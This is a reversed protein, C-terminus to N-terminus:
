DLYADGSEASTFKIIVVNVSDYFIDGFCLQKLSDVIKVNPMKGLNHEIRWVTSPETQKYHFMKYEGTQEGESEEGEEAAGGWSIQGKVIVSKEVRVKKDTYLEGTEPDVKWYGGGGAAGSGGPSEGIGSSSSLGGSSIEAITEKEVEVSAVPLSQLEVEVESSILSWSYTNIWYATGDKDMLVLPLKNEPVNLRGRKVLRPLAICRAYDRAILQLYDNSEVRNDAWKRAKLGSPLLPTAYMFYEQGALDAMGFAVNVEAADERAGNGLRLIDQYGDTQDYKLLQVSYIYQSYLGTPNFIRITVDDAYAYSRSSASFLPLVIEVEQADDSTDSEMPTELETEIVGGESKWVYSAISRNSDPSSAVLYFKNTGAYTRGNMAVEVGLSQVEVGQGFNRALIRLLLRYGVSNDFTVTQSISDNPSSLVYAAEEADYSVTTGFKEWSADESMDSNELASPKYKNESTIVQERYAPSIENELQGVPWWDSSTMSGFFRLGLNVSQGTQVDIAIVNGNSVEVDNERWILWSNNVQSIKANLTSLIEQLVDYCSREVLYDLDAEVNLIQSASLAEPEVISISNILRIPFDIGTKSLIYVLINYLSSTGLGEYIHRKLEGLGDVATVTVDYPPAIDPESYLEPCVFGSWLTASDTRLVVKYMTPDPTFLESYEGDRLCEAPFELSTGCVNESKDRRLVPSGGLSRVYSKGSYGKQLIAIEYDVGNDSVFPYIYKEGYSM